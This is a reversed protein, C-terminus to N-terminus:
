NVFDTLNENHTFQWGIREFGGARQRKGGALRPARKEFMRGMGRRADRQRAGNRGASIRRFVVGELEGEDATASATSARDRLRQGGGPRGLEPRQRIEKGVAGCGDEAM